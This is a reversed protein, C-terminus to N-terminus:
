RSLVRQGPLCKPETEWVGLAVLAWLSPRRVVTEKMRRGRITMTSRRVGSRVRDGPGTAYKVYESGRSDVSIYVWVARSGACATSLLSPCNAIAVCLKVNGTRPKGRMETAPKTTSSCDLFWVVSDPTTYMTWDGAKPVICLVWVSVNPMNEGTSTITNSDVCAELRLAACRWYDKPKHQVLCMRGRPRWCDPANSIGYQRTRLLLGGRYPCLRHQREPPNYM